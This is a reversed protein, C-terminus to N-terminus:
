SALRKRIVKGSGNRPLADVLSISAPIQYLPLARVCLERVEEASSFDGVVQLGIQVGNATDYGYVLAERVRADKKLTGEIEAPYINMGGKIILDDDRGKIRLLGRENLLAIDGTCLWGNRLKEATREPDRYYGLMVNKGKVYLLGEENEACVKGTRDLIKISVSDLPIGVCDPYRRFLEPPLYSVRPCAETLGYVHYIAANPFADGIRKGVAASMCEGSICISKLTDCGRGRCFRAMMSLLTPTGCFATIRYTRILELLRAPHFVGSYFRISAGTVLATLLEGTLVACHYIPRSILVTDRHDLEFYSVIDTVNTIVSEESLMAGKPRGTTGSTCMILAPHRDPLQYSSNEVPYVAIKGRVDSLIASPSVHDLIRKCHTEGYRVSLPVATVRACFCALLALAANLESSCLIACSSLGELKKSLEEALALAEAFSLSREEECIEKEAHDQMHRKIFQWLTM